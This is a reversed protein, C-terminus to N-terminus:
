FRCPAVEPLTIGFRPMIAFNDEKRTTLPCDMEPEEIFKISIALWDGLLEVCNETGNGVVNPRTINNEHSPPFYRVASGAITTRM